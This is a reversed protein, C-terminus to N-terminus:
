RALQGVHLVIRYWLNNQLSKQVPRQANMYNFFLFGLMM